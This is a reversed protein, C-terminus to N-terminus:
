YSSQAKTRLKAGYKWMLIPAPIGFLLSAFAMTSSGWGYGLREFMIPAFLPFLFATLSKLFQSAAMASSTHDAYADIVYATLAMSTMQMGFTTMFIGVDVAVWHVQYRACWGYMLLGLPSLIAAPIALPIRSEPEPECTSDSSRVRRKFMYDMLPGGLQSGAVEGLACAIYHLGSIELSQNYQDVWLTAFTSLVIYLIGYHFAAIVSNVQIIPHFILLRMPRSLARSLESLVSKDGYLREELTQYRQDNTEKRLREARRRLILPAFTERFSSFSVLIMVAQFISTAWFMWRWTTRYAM